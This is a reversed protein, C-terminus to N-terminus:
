ISWKWVESKPLLFLLLFIIFFLFWNNTNTTTCGWQATFIKAKNKSKESRDCMHYIYIKESVDCWDCLMQMSTFYTHSFKKWQKKKKEERHERKSDRVRESSQGVGSMCVRFLQWMWATNRLSSLSFFSCSDSEIMTKIKKRKKAEIWGNTENKILTNTMRGWEEKMDHDCKSRKAEARHERVDFEYDYVALAGGKM